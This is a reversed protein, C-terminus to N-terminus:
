AFGFGKTEKIAVMVREHMIEKSPYEPIDIQNFSYKNYLIFVILLAVM